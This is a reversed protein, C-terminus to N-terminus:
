LDVSLVLSRGTGFAAVGDPCRGNIVCARAEGVVAGYDLEESGAIVNASCVDARVGRIGVM